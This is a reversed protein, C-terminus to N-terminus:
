INLTNVFEVILLKRTDLTASFFIFSHNREDTNASNTIANFTISVQV